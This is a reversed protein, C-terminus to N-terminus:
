VAGILARTLSFNKARQSTNPAALTPMSVPSAATLWVAGITAQVASTSALMASRDPRFLMCRSTAHGLLRGHADELIAESLGLSRTSHILRSRGIITGNRITAPRVFSVSLESSTVVVGPPASTFIACALPLDAVFAISGALFVGAGSQWWVSAPMSASAAGLGAETLRLGTLKTLPPDPLKHEVCARMMELGSRDLVEPGWLQGRPPEREVLPTIRPM